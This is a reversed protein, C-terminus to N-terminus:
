VGGVFCPPAISKIVKVKDETSMQNLLEVISDVSHIKNEDVTENSDEARKMHIVQDDTIWIKVYDGVHINTLFRIIPPITIRLGNPMSKFAMALTKKM